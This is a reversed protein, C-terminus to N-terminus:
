HNINALVKINIVRNNEHNKKRLAQIQNVWEHWFRTIFSCNYHPGLRILPHHQHIILNIFKLRQLSAIDNEKISFTTETEMRHQSKPSVYYMENKCNFKAILGQRGEKNMENCTQSERGEKVKRQVKSSLSDRAPILLVEWIVEKLENCSGHLFVWIQVMRCSLFVDKCFGKQKCLFIPKILRGYKYIYSSIQM